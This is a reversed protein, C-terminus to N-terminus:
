SQAFAHGRNGGPLYERRRLHDHGKQPQPYLPVGRCRKQRPRRHPAMRRHHYQPDRGSRNWYGKMVNESRILVEGLEEPGVDRGQDDVLRIDSEFVPLGCSGAKTIANESDIMAAPGTCETLGYLQRVEIGAADYEQILSVPVPAAYVLITKVSSFDYKEFGPVFKLFMLLAPVSGFGRVKEEQILELMRKPDFTRMLISKEGNQVIMPVGALAGVHFLPLVILINEGSYGISVHLSVATCYYNRHTLMAGKPQGTTGSTYLISLVDDDGGAIEPEADSEAALLKAYSQAWEPPNDMM